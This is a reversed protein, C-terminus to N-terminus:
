WKRLTSMAPYPHNNARLYRYAKPSVSRLSIASAIDIPSWRVNRSKQDSNKEFLKRVQGPTYITALAAEYKRLKTLLTNNQVELSKINNQLKTLQEKNQDDLSHKIHLLETLLETNQDELYKIKQKLTNIEDDRSTFFLNFLSYGYIALLIASM